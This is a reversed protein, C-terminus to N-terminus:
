VATQVSDWFARRRGADFLILIVPITELMWLNYDRIDVDFIYDSGVDQLSEAAKLLFSLFADTLTNHDITPRISSVHGYVPFSVPRAFAGRLGTM